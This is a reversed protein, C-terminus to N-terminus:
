KGNLQDLLDNQLDVKRLISSYVVMAHLRNQVSIPLIRRALRPSLSTHCLIAGVEVLLIASLQATITSRVYMEQYTM